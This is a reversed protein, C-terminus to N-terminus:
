VSSSSNLQSSIGQMLMILSDTGHIGEDYIRLCVPGGVSGKV